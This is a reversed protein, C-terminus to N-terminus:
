GEVPRAPVGVVTTGPPVDAVVVAGAGVVAGRGVRVRPLVTAATYITAGAGILVGGTLHVGPAVTAYDGVVVDHSIVCGANIQAGEGIRVHTTAVTSGAGIYSGPGLEVDWGISASPHVLTAAHLGTAQYRAQLLRRTDPNGVAVFFSATIEYLTNVPGLWEVNLAALLDRDPVDDAVVGLLDWRHSGAATAERILSVTERGHGGAGIVVLPEPSSKQSM